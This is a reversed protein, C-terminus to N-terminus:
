WGFVSQRVSLLVTLGGVASSAAMHPGTPQQSAITPAVQGARAMRATSWGRARAVESGYSRADQAVADKIEPRLAAFRLTRTDLMTAQTTGRAADYKIAILATLAGDTPGVPTTGARHASSTPYTSTGAFAVSARHATLFAMAVLMVGAILLTHCLLRPIV